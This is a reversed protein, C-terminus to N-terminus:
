LKIKAQLSLYQKNYELVSIKKIEIRNTKRNKLM